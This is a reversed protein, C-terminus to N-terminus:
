KGLFAGVVLEKDAATGSEQARCGWRKIQM